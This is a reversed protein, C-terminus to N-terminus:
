LRPKHFLPCWLLLLAQAQRFVAAINVTFGRMSRTLADREPFLEAVACITVIFILNIHLQVTTLRPDIRTVAEKSVRSVIENVLLSATFVIALLLLLFSLQRAFRSAVFRVFM